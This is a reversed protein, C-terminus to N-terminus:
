FLFFFTLSFLLLFWDIWCLFWVFLCRFDLLVSWLDLSVGFSEFLYIFVYTSLCFLSSFIFGCVSCFIFPRPLSESSGLLLYVLFYLFHLIVFLGVFLLCCFIKWLVWCYIILSVKFWLNRTIGCQVLLSSKRGSTSGVSWSASFSYSGRGGCSEYLDYIHHSPPRWLRFTRFVTWCTWRSILPLQNILKFGFIFLFIVLPLATYPELANERM